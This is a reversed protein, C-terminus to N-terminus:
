ANAILDLKKKALHDTRRAGELIKKLCEPSVPDIVYIEDDDLLSQLDGLTMIGATSYAVTTQHTLKPYDTGDLICIDDVWSERLTTLRVVVVSNGTKVPDSIVVMIHKNPRVFKVTYGLFM